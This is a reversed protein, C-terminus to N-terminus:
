ALAPTDPPQETVELPNVWGELLFVKGAPVDEDVGPGKNVMAMGITLYDPCKTLMLEYLGDFIAQTTRVKCPDVTYNAADWGLTKYFGVLVDGPLESEFLGFDPADVVALLDKRKMGM